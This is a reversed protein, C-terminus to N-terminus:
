KGAGMLVLSRQAFPSYVLLAACAAALGWNIHHLLLFPSLSWLVDVVLVLPWLRLFRQKFRPARFLVASFLFARLPILLAATAPIVVGLRWEAPVPAILEGIEALNSLAGVYFGLYMLQLLLFLRQATEHHNRPLDYETALLTLPRPEEVVAEDSAGGAEAEGVVEVPAIFRYGQRPVTEVFRPNKATDGLAERIRNVAANVGHEFDVFTEAQWLRKAIEDRTILKGPQEVLIWLLEFPQSTLRVHRGKRRLEGADLDLEFVGFRYCSKEKGDTM